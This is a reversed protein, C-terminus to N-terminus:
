LPDTGDQDRVVLPLQLASPPVTADAEHLGRRKFAIREIRLFQPNSEGKTRRYQIEHEASRVARLAHHNLALTAAFIDRRRHLRHRRLGDSGPTREAMLM